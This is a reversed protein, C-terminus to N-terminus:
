TQEERYIALFADELGPTVPTGNVPPTECLVRLVPGDAGQGESLLFQGPALPMGAPLQFVRGQFRACIRAPSDCCYLRHDKFMVIQGAITEIDSVIHTSLIVIRDEALTHILNRFRVRERPDLGATPEDLILLKLNEKSLERAIETFQKHGVPMSSIVMKQDIAVGMKEIAKAARNDMEKYDLTDLRPGFVESIVSKKKPERNLLINETATFGPILSFEQHVMGIGAKLADFPTNFQVKEGDILVDGEYGGTERIVDMGFLIKMLTSKGAGNEGVLGLVEGEKLTFNIDTLVQNGFFGKKINRMELLPANNKEMNM